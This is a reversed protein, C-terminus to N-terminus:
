MQNKLNKTKIKFNNLNNIKMGTIADIWEGNAKKYYIIMDTEKNSEISKAALM